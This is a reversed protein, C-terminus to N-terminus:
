EEEVVQPLLPQVADFAGQAAARVVGWLGWGAAKAAKKSFVGDERRAQNVQRVADVAAGGTNWVGQAANGISNATAKVAGAAGKAAWVAGSGAASAAAVSHHQIRQRANMKQYESNEYRSIKEKLNALRDTVRGIDFRVNPENLHMFKLAFKNFVKLAAPYSLRPLNVMIDILEKFIARVDDSSAGPYLHGLLADNGDAALKGLMSRNRSLYLRTARIMRVARDAEDVATRLHEQTLGSSRIIEMFEVIEENSGFDLSIEVTTLERFAQRLSAIQERPFVRGLLYDNNDAALAQIINQSDKRRLFDTLEQLNANLAPDEFHLMREPGVSLDRAVPPSLPMGARPPSGIPFRPDFAPSFPPMGLRPQGQALRPLPSGQESPPAEHAAMSSHVALAQDNDVLAREFVRPPVPQGRSPIKKWFMMTACDEKAARLAEQETIAVRKDDDAMYWVNDIKLYSYYHAGSKNVSFSDLEYQSIIGAADTISLNGGAPLTIPTKSYDIAGEDGKERNFFRRQIFIPLIDPNVVPTLQSAGIMVSFDVADESLSNLALGLYSHPNGADRGLDSIAVAYKSQRGMQNCYNNYGDILLTYVETLDEARSIDLPRNGRAGHSIRMTSFFTGVRQEQEPPSLRGVGVRSREFYDDMVEKLAIFGAHQFREAMDTIYRRMDPDKFLVTQILSNAWCTQSGAKGAAGHSRHLGVPPLYVRLALSNPPQRELRLTDYITFSVQSFHSFNMKEDSDSDRAKEPPVAFIVNLSGNFAKIETLILQLGRNINRTEGDVGYEKPVKLILTPNPNGQVQILAGIVAQQAEEETDEGLDVHVPNLGACGLEVEEPSRPQVSVKLDATEFDGLNRLSAPDQSLENLDTRVQSADGFPSSARQSSQSGAPGPTSRGHSSQARQPGTYSPAHQRSGPPIYVTNLGSFGNLASNDKLQHIARQFASSTRAAIGPRLRHETAGIQVEAEGTFKVHMSSVTSCDQPLLIGNRDLHARSAASAQEFSRQDAHLAEGAVNHIRVIFDEGGIEVIHYAKMNGSSRNAFPAIGGHSRPGDPQAMFRMKSIPQATTAM